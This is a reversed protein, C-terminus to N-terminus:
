PTLPREHSIGSLFSSLALDSKQDYCANATQFGLCSDGLYCCPWNGFAINGCPIFDGKTQNNKGFYCTGNSINANFDSPM